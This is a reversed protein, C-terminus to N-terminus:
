SGYIAALNFFDVADPVPNTDNTTVSNMVDSRELRHDLGLTHGMEHVVTALAGNDTSRDLPQTYLIISASAMYAGEVKWDMEGDTGRSRSGNEEITVCNAGASCTRVAVANLCSSKSWIDAADAVMGAYRASLRGTEFEVVLEAGAPKQWPKVPSDDPDRDEVTAGERATCSVPGTDPGGRSSPPACATLLLCLGLALASLARRATGTHQRRFSLLDAFCRSGSEVMM